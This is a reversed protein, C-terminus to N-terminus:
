VREDAGTYTSSKFNRGGTKMLKSSLLTHLLSRTIVSNLCLFLLYLRKVELSLCLCTSPASVSAAEAVSASESTVFCVSTWSLLPFGQTLLGCRSSRRAGLAGAQGLRGGDPCLPRCGPSPAHELAASVAELRM